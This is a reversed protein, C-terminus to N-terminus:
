MSWLKNNDQARLLHFSLSCYETQMDASGLTQRVQRLDLEIHWGAGTTQRSQRMLLVRWLRQLPIHLFLFKHFRIIKFYDKCKWIHRCKNGLVIGLFLFSNAWNLARWLLELMGGESAKFFGVVVGSPFEEGFLLLYKAVSFFCDEWSSASKKLWGQMLRALDKRPCTPSLM